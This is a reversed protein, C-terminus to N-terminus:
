EQWEMYCAINPTVGSATTYRLGIQGVNATANGVLAPERGLPFQVVFLGGFPSIYWGKLVGLSPETTVTGSLVSTAGLNSTLSPDSIAVPAGSTGLSAATTATTRYLEFLVGAAAASGDMSIGLESIPYSQTATALNKVIFLTKTTATVALAKIEGTSFVPQAM